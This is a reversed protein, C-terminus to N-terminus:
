CGETSGLWSPRMRVRRGRSVSCGGHPRAGAADVEEEGAAEGDSWSPPAARQENARGGRQGQRFFSAADLAHLGATAAQLMISRGTTLRRARM